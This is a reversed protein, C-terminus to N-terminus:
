LFFSTAPYFLNVSDHPLTVTAIDNCDPITVDPLIVHIKSPDTGFKNSFGRKIYELQVFIETDRRIFLRIFFPYINKYFWLTRQEKRWVNWKHRMLPMPQHYYIFDPVRFGCNFGTNQLSISVIPTIGLKNLRRSLGHVDWVFRGFLSKVNSVPVLEVNPNTNIAPIRDSVFVVWDTDNVPIHNVFQRM